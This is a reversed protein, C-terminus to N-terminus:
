RNDLFWLILICLAITKGTSKKYLHSQRQRRVNPSTYLNLTNSFFINILIISGFLLSISSLQLLNYLSSSRFNYEEGFVILIILDFHIRYAPFTARVSSFILAYLAKTPFSIPRFWQSSWSTPLYVINFPIKSLYSPISHIPNIQSLIPVLPQIKYVSCHVKSNWLINLFRQIASSSTAEWIPSLEM